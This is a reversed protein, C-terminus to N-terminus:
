VLGGVAENLDDESLSGSEVVNGEADIVVFTSQSVVGFANRIQYDEDELHVLDGTSTQDVFGERDETSGAAYLGAGSVGIIGVQDGYEDFLGSVTPGQSLCIPCDYEWFWLVVPSGALSAADFEEGDLSTATFELIEPVAVDETSETTTEASTAPEEVTEETTREDAPEEESGCASLALVAAIGAAAMGIATRKLTTGKM